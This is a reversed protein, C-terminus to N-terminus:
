GYYVANICQSFVGNVSNTIGYHNWRTHVLTSYSRLVKKKYKQLVSIKKYELKAAVFNKFHNLVLFMDKESVSWLPVERTM